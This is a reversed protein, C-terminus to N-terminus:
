RHEDGEILGLVESVDDLDPLRVRGLSAPRTFPGAAKPPASELRALGLRLAENVLDKFSRGGRARMRELQRAVDDDLSLTTRM